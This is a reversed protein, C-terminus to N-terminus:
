RTQWAFNPESDDRISGHNGKKMLQRGQSGTGTAYCCEWFFSGRIERIVRIPSHAKHFTIKRAAMISRGTGFRFRPPHTLFGITPRLSEPVVVERFGFDLLFQRLLAFSIRPKTM